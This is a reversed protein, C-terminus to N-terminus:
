EVILLLEFELAQIKDRRVASYSSDQLSYLHKIKQKTLLIKSNKKENNKINKKIEKIETILETKQIKKYQQIELECIHIEKLINRQQEQLREYKITLENLTSM